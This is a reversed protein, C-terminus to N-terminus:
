SLLLSKCYGLHEERRDEHAEGGERTDVGCSECGLAVVGAEFSAGGVELTRGLHAVAGPGLRARARRSLAVVLTRGLADALFDSAGPRLGRDVDIAVNADLKTSVASGRGGLDALVVRLVLVALSTQSGDSEHGISGKAGLQREKSAGLNVERSASADAGAELTDTGTETAKVKLANDIGNRKEVGGLEAEAGADLDATTEETTEHGAETARNAARLAHNAHATALTVANGEALRAATVENINAALNSALDAALDTAKEATQDAETYHITSKLHDITNTRDHRDGDVAQEADNSVDERRHERGEVAVAFLPVLEFRSPPPVNM